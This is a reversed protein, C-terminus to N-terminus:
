PAKLVSKGVAERMYNKILEAQLEQKTFKELYKGKQLIPEFEERQLDDNNQVSALLLEVQPELKQRMEEESMKSIAANAQAIAEPSPLNPAKIVSKLNTAFLKCGEFIHNSKVMNMSKWGAKVWKLLSVSTKGPTEERMVFVTVADYMSAEAWSVGTMLNGPLGSYFFYWDGKPGFPCGKKGVDSKAAMRSVSVITPVGDAQYGSVLRNVDYSYYTGSNPDPTTAESEQGRFSVANDADPLTSYLGALGARAKATDHWGGLRVSGPYIAHPPVNPNQMYQAVKSLSIPLTFKIYAGEMGDFEPVDVDENDGTDMSVFELLNKARSHHFPLDPREVMQMLQKVDKMAGELAKDVEANGFLGAQVPSALLLICLLIAVVGCRTSFIM